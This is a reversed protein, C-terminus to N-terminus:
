KFNWQKNTYISQKFKSIAEQGFGFDILSKTLSKLTDRYKYEVQYDHCIGNEDILTIEYRSEEINNIIKTIVITSM